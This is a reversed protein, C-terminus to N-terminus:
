YQYETEEGDKPIKGIHGFWKHHTRIREDIEDPALINALQRAHKWAGADTFGKTHIDAVMLKTDTYRLHMPLTPNKGGLMEHLFAISVGGARLLYRMTQNKGSETTKIATQDDQEWNCQYQDFMRSADGEKLIEYMQERAQTKCLGQHEAISAGPVHGTERGPQALPRVCAPGRRPICFLRRYYLIHTLTINYHGLIIQRLGLTNPM